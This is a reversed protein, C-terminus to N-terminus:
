ESDRRLVIIEQQVQIIKETLDKILLENQESQKKIKGLINRSKECELEKEQSIQTFDQINKAKEKQYYQIKKKLLDKDCHSDLPIAFDKIEGAVLISLKLSIDESDFYVMDKKQLFVFIQPLNRFILRIGPPLEEYKFHKSYIEEKFTTSQVQIHLLETDEKIAKMCNFTYQETIKRM